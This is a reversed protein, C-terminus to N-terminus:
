RAEIRVVSASWPCFRGGGFQLADREVDSPRGDCLEIAAEVFQVDELHWRWGSNVDTGIAIRGNPIRARGGNQAAIAAEVNAEGIVLVRFMEDHVVLTVIATQSPSTLGNGCGLSVASIHLVGIATSLRM